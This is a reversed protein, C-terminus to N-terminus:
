ECRELASFFSSYLSPCALTGSVFSVREEGIIFANPIKKWLSLFDSM